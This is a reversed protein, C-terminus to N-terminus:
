YVKMIYILIMYPPMNSHPKSGGTARSQITEASPNDVDDGQKIYRRGWNKCGDMCINYKEIRHRHSPIQDITLTVEPTGGTNKIAEPNNSGLVFRGRLDPTNRTGDCIIWGNPIASKTWIIVSGEPLLEFGGVSLTGKANINGDVNQNGLTKVNAPITLDGSTVGTTNHYNKGTLLSKSIAGLNRIADVDYNYQEDIMRKIKNNLDQTSTNTNHEVVKGNEFKEVKNLKNLKNELNNNKLYLFIICIFILIFNIENINIM